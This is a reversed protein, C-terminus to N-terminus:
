EMGNLLTREIVYERPRSGMHFEGCPGAGPPREAPHADEDAALPDCQAGVRVML